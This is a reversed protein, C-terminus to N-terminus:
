VGVYYGDDSDAKSIRDNEDLPAKIKLEAMKYGTWSRFMHVVADGQADLGDAYVFWKDEM